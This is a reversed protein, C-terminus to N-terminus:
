LAFKIEFWFTSGKGVTSKVGIKGGILEVLQKSIALGLGTGGFKRTTSIDAQSFKEFIKDLKDAEIGIGTDTIEFLLTINKDTKDKATISTEVYGSETFKVANGILNTLIQRTRLPDGKIFSPIDGSIKIKIELNKKAAHSTFINDVQEVIEKLDFSVSEIEMEGAEIKSFDLIDNILDLLVESSHYIQNAYKDQKPQLETNMLLETMGLIGNLPTRIEHSMHALFISKAHNANDADIRSKQLQFHTWELRDTYERMKEEAKKRETINRVIAVFMTEDGNTILNIVIEIFFNANDKHKATLEREKGVVDYFGKQVSDKLYTENASSETKPILIDINKGIIEENSYGFMRETAQNVSKITGRKDLGIIGDVVNDLILKLNQEKNQLAELEKHMTKINDQASELDLSLLTNQSLLDKNFYYLIYISLLIIIDNILIYPSLSHKVSALISISAVLGLGAFLQIYVELKNDPSNM